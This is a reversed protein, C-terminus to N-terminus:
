ASLVFPGTVEYTIGRHGGAGPGWQSSFYLRTGDPSFAPGTLETRDHGSVQLLPVVRGDTTLTVIQQHGGDEAVLVDGAANALLNDVGTLAGGGPMSDDYLVRLTSTATDLAWVRDDGKTAFFVTGAHLWLGEGGNFPSAAPRPTGPPWDLWHVRWHATDGDRPPFPMGPEVRMLQLTGDQLAGRPAGAPWDAPSSAFRLFAGDPRDETLYVHHQAADVAAAEHNFRGLAPLGRAAASGDVTCEWVRGRPVEECSLWTGWPTPGGACNRSTGSCIPYQAVLQAARDFRLAGVGGRGQDEESNSVYVWGGDAQAFVAGGDPADHWAYGADDGGRRAGARAVIRSAFGSPLRLGNADENGLAGVHALNSRRGPPPAASALATSAERGCAGLGLVSASTLARLLFARRRTM